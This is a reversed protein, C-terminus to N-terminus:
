SESYRLQRLLAAADFEFWQEIIKGHDFRADVIVFLTVTQGSPAVVGDYPTVLPGSHTGTGRLRALVDDGSVAIAEVTFHWDLFATRFDDILGHVPGMGVGVDQLGSSHGVHNTTLLEDLSTTNGANWVEEIYRRFLEMNQNQAANLASPEGGTQGHAGAPLLGSLFVMSALAMMLCLWRLRGGPISRTMTTM